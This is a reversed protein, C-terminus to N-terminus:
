KRAYGLKYLVYFQPLVFILIFLICFCFVAEFGSSYSLNNVNSRYISSIFKNQYLPTFRYLTSVSSDIVYYWFFIKWKGASIIQKKTIYLYIAISYIPITLFYFWDIFTFNPFIKIYGYLLFLGLVITFVFYVRWFWKVIRPHKKESLLFNFKRM